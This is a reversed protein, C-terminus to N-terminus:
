YKSQISDILRRIEEALNNTTGRDSARDALFEALGSSVLILLRREEDTM